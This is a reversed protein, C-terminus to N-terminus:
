RTAIRRDIGQRARWPRYRHRGALQFRGAAMASVALGTAYADIGGSTVKLVVYLYYEQRLVVPLPM